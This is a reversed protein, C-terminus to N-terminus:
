KIVEAYCGIYGSSKWATNGDVTIVGGSGSAIKIEYESRLNYLRYLSYSSTPYYNIAVECENKGNADDAYAFSSKVKKTGFPHPFIFTAAGSFYQRGLFVRRNGNVAGERRGYKYDTDNADTVSDEDTRVFGLAISDAPLIARIDTYTNATESTYHRCPLLLANSIAAIEAPTRPTNRIEAYHLICASYATSWPTVLFCANGAGTNIASPTSYVLADNVKLLLNTGDYGLSILYTKGVEVIYSSNYYNGYIAINIQNTADLCVGFYQTAAHAGYGAIQPNAATGYGVITVLASLERIATGTPFGTSNASTYYGTSGNGKGAYDAAWGDVADVTGTKTLIGGKSPDSATNAVTASGDIIWRCVTGADADPFAALIKDTTGAKTDYVLQARRAELALVNATRAVKEGSIADVGAGITLDLDAGVTFKRGSAIYDTLGPAGGSRKQWSRAGDATSALVMDDEAPNGLAPEAGVGAATHPSGTGEAHDIAVQMEAAYGEAAAAASTATTAASSATSANATTTAVAALIQAVIDQGISTVTDVPLQIARRIKEDLQQMIKIFKDYAQEIANSSLGGGYTLEIDQVIDLERLITIKWGEPLIPPQDEVPPATGDEYGPYLVAGAGLDVYFDATIEYPAGGPATLYVRLEDAGAISIPTYPFSTAIGNGDYIQKNLASEVTM